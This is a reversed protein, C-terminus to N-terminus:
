FSRKLRNRIGDLNVVLMSLRPTGLLVTDALKEWVKLSKANDHLAARTVRQVEPPTRPNLAFHIMDEDIIV